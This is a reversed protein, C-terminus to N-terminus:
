IHILSLYDYMTTRYLHEYYPYIDDLKAKLQHKFRGVTEFGIERFYFHNIFKIEFESKRSNTYLNYDFDFIGVNNKVLERIEITYNAM